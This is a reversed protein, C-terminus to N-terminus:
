WGDYGGSQPPCWLQCSDIDAGVKQAGANIFTDSVKSRYGFGRVVAPDDDCDVVASLELINGEEDYVVETALAGSDVVREDVSTYRVPTM